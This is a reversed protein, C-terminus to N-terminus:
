ETTPAAKAHITITGDGTYILDFINAAAQLWKARGEVTWTSNPAPLTDLLGQIFPHLLKDDDNKIRVSQPDRSSRGGGDGGTQVNAGQPPSGGGRVIIPEVLRDDGSDYFGAQRASKDFALRANTRQKIAVGFKVFAQELGHPRPPLPRGKFEEYAKRYLPVTLFADARAQRRIKEDPSVVRFGLDTLEQKGQNNAAMLGFTRATATKLVFNGSGLSLGLVGALQERTLAVGGANFVAQAVSVAADLDLYPFQISSQERAAKKLTAKKSPRVKITNKPPTEPSSVVAPQEEINTIGDPM